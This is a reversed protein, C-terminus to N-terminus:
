SAEEKTNSKDGYARKINRHRKEPNNTVEGASLERDLVYDFVGVDITKRKILESSRWLGYLPGIDNNETNWMDPKQKWSLFYSRHM